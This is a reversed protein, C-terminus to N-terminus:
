PFLSLLSGVAQQGTLRVSNHSGENLSLGERLCCFYYYYSACVVICVCFWDILSHIFTLSCNLSVCLVSRQDGCAHVSTYTHGYVYMDVCIHEYACSCMCWVCLLDCMCAWVYICMHLGCLSFLLCRIRRDGWVAEESDDLCTEGPTGEASADWVSCFYVWQKHRRPDCMNSGQVTFM